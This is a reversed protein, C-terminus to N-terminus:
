GVLNRKLKKPFTEVMARFFYSKTMKGFPSPVFKPRTQYFSEPFKFNSPFRHGIEYKIKRYNRMKSSRPLHSLHLYPADLYVLKDSKQVPNNQGDYYSEDPHPDSVHLKSIRRYIAKLHLHGKKGLIQYQGAREDQYHYIDGILNYFPVVIGDLSEGQTNIKSVVKKISDQWWVEDGDLVLIWDCDSQELMKQRLATFQYRDVAGLDQFEIKNGKTKMIEQVIKVTNDNSGTDWVLIKDVFDIVSILAFFIFNEENRVITNVWIKKSSM